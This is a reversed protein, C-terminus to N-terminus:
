GILEVFYYGEGNLNFRFGIDSNRFQQEDIKKMNDYLWVIVKELIRIEIM